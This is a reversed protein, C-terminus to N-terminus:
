KWFEYWKRKRQPALPKLSPNQLKYLQVKLRDIESNMQEVLQDRNIVTYYESTWGGDVWHRVAVCEKNRIAEDVIQYADQNKLIRNYEEPSLVVKAKEM